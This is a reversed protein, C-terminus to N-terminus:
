VSYFGKIMKKFFSSSSCIVGSDMSDRLVNLDNSHKNISFGVICVFHSIWEVAINHSRLERSSYTTNWPVCAEPLPWCGPLMRHTIPLPPLAMFWAQACHSISLCWKLFLRVTV